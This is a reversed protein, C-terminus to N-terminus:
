VYGNEVVSLVGQFDAEVSYWGLANRTVGRPCQEVERLMRAEERGFGVRLLGNLRTARAADGIGFVAPSQVNWFCSPGDEAAKGIRKARQVLPTGKAPRPRLVFPKTEPRAKGLVTMTGAIVGTEPACAGAFSTIEKGGSKEALKVKGDAAITGAIELEGSGTD